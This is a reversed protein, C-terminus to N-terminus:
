RRDPNPNVMPAGPKFSVGDRAEPESPPMELAPMRMAPEAPKMQESVPRFAGGPQECGLRHSEAQVAALTATTAAVDGIADKLGSHERMDRSAYAGSEFRAKLAACGAEDRPPATLEDLESELAMGFLGMTIGTSRFAPSTFDDPADGRAVSATVRTRKGGDIPTLHATMTVAVQNGSMVTWVIGDPTRAHRFLPMVGGSRSPDTGPSGPQERIDLDDLAAAVQEPTRDVVRSYGSGGMMYWGGLLVPAAIAITRLM